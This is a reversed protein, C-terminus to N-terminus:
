KFISNAYNDRFQIRNAALSWREKEAVFYIFRHGFYINSTDEYGLVLLRMQKAPILMPTEEETILGKLEKLRELQYDYITGKTNESMSDNFFDNGKDQPQIKVMPSFDESSNISKDYAEDVSSCDGYDGGPCAFEEDYPNMIKGCGSLSFIALLLFISTIFSKM